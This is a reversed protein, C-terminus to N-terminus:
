SFRYKGCGTEGCLVINSEKCIEPLRSALTPLLLTNHPLPTFLVRSPVISRQVVEGSKVLVSKDDQSLYRYLTKASVISRELTTESAVDNDVEIKLLYVKWNHVPHYLWPVSIFGGIEVPLQSMVTNQSRESPDERSFSFTHSDSDACALLNETCLWPKKPNEIHSRIHVLQLSLRARKCALLDVIDNEQQDLDFANWSALIIGDTFLSARM